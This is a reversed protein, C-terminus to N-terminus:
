PAQTVIEGSISNLILYGLTIVIIAVVGSYITEKAEMLEDPNGQAMIYKYGGYGVVATSILATLYVGFIYWCGIYTTLGVASGATCETFPIGVGINVDKAFVNSIPILIIVLLIIAPTFKKIIILFNKM